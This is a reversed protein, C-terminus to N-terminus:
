AVSRNPSAVGAPQENVEGRTGGAAGPRLALHRDHFAELTRRHGISIITTRVLRHRLMRLLRAEAPEDLASTAEDMLLWDPRAVLARCMALRQQEGGSLELGWNRSEDLRNALHTLECDNLASELVAAEVGEARGPYCLNDRLTGIILYPRQPLFLLRAGQPVTVVV